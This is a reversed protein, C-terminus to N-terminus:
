GEVKLLLEVTGRAAQATAVYRALRVSLIFSSRRSTQRTYRCQVSIDNAHRSIGAERAAGTRIVQRRGADAAAASNVAAHEKSGSRPSRQDSPLEGDIISRRDGPDQGSPVLESKGESRIRIVADVDTSFIPASRKHNGGAEFLLGGAKGQIQNWAPLYFAFIWWPSKQCGRLAASPHILM